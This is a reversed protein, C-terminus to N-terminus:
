GLEALAHRKSRAHVESDDLAARLLLRHFEGDALLMTMKAAKTMRAFALIRVFKMRSPECFGIPDMSGEEECWHRPGARDSAKENCTM